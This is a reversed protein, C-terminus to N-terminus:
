KKELDKEYKNLAVIIAAADRGLVPVWALTNCYFKFKKYDPAETIIPTCKHRFHKRRAVFKQALKNKALGYREILEKRKSMFCDDSCKKRKLIRKAADKFRKGKSTPTPLIMPVPIEAEQPPINVLGQQMQIPSTFRPEDIINESDFDM